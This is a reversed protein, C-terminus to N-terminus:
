PHREIFEAIAAKVLAYLSLRKRKAYARIREYETKPYFAAIRYPQKYPVSRVDTSPICVWSRPRM